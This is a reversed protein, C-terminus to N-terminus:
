SRLEEGARGYHNLYWDVFAGVGEEITTTPRYGVDRALAEASAWTDAVDGPQMPLLNKKAERGLAKELAEIFALVSVPRNSGINYLRYPASSSSPLPADSRWEPDPAAPRDLM